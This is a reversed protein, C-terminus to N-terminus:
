SGMKRPTTTKSKAGSPAKPASTKVNKVAHKDAAKKAPQDANEETSEEETEVGLKDYDIVDKIMHYWVLLKKMDSVYVKEKDYDPVLIEMSAKVEDNGAKGDAITQGADVAAKANKLVQWLKMEGDNTYIAIDSLISIRQRMNTAFRKKSEDLSEVILGNQNKGIIKHLGPVGSISIIDKLEMTPCIEKFLATFM